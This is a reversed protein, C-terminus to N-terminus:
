DYYDYKRWHIDDGDTSGTCHSSECSVEICYDRVWLLDFISFDNHEYLNHFAYCLHLDATKERDLGENWNDTDKSLYIVYNESPIDEDKYLHLENIGDKYLPMYSDYSGNLVGWIKKARMSQVPHIGSYKYSMFVKGILEVEHLDTNQISHRMALLQCRMECQAKILSENFESLLLEYEDTLVFMQDLLRKRVKLLHQVAVKSLDNRFSREEDMMVDLIELEVAKVAPSNFIEQVIQKM